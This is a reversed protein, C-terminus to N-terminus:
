LKSFAGMIQYVLMELSTSLLIDTDVSPPSMPHTDDDGTSLLEAWVPSPLAVSDTTGFDFELVPSTALSTGTGTDDAYRESSFSSMNMGSELPSHLSLLDAMGDIDHSEFSHTLPGSECGLSSETHSGFAMGGESMESPFGLGLEIDMGDSPPAGCPAMAPFLPHSLRSSSLIPHALFPFPPVLLLPDPFPQSFSTDSNTLTHHVLIHSPAATSSLSVSAFPNADPVHVEPTADVNQQTTTRTSARTGWIATVKTKRKRFSCTHGKLPPANGFEDICGKRCCL